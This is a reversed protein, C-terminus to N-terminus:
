KEVELRSKLEEEVYSPLGYKACIEEIIQELEAKDM